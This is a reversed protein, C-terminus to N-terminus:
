VDYFAWPLRRTLALLLAWTHEASAPISRMFETEGKLSIVEVGRHSAAELDIHDLGTTATVM